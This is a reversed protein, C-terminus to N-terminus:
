IAPVTHLTGEKERRFYRDKKRRNNQPTKATEEAEAPKKFMVLMSGLSMEKGGISERYPMRYLDRIKNGDTHGHTEPEWAEQIHLDM